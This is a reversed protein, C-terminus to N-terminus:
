ENNLAEDLFKSIPIVKQARDGSQYAVDDLLKRATTPSTLNAKAILASLNAAAYATGTGVSKGDSDTVPSAGSLWYSNPDYDSYEAPKNGGDSLASALLASKAVSSYRSPSSRSGAPLIVIKENSIEELQRLIEQTEFPQENGLTYGTSWPFLLIDYEAKALAANELWILMESYSGSWDRDEEYDGIFKLDINDSGFRVAEAM